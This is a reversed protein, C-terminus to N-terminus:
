VVADEGWRRRKRMERVSAFSADQIGIYLSEGCKAERSFAVGMVEGFFDVEQVQSYLQAEVIHVFDAAEACVLFQGDQSFQTSLVPAMRGFFTLMPKIESNDAVRIDWIRYTRDQNGTVLQYPNTPHWDLGFGFDTHGVLTYVEKLTLASFIRGPFEDSVFAVLAQDPSLVVKNVNNPATIQRKPTTLINPDYFSVVQNNSGVMLETAGQYQIFNVSNTIHGLEPNALQQRVKLEGEMSDLYLQGHMGGSAILPYAVDFSTVRMRDAQTLSLALHCTQTLPDFVSIEGEEPGTMYVQNESSVKLCHRLQFHEQRVPAKSYNAEFCYFDAETVASSNFPDPLSAARPQYSHLRRQRLLSRTFPFDISEFPIAQEDEPACSESFRDRPNPSKYALLSASCAM